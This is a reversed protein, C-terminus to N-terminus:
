APEPPTAAQANAEVIDQICNHFNQADCRRDYATPCYRQFWHEILGHHVVESIGDWFLVLQGDITAWTCLVNVPALGFTGVQVVRGDLDQQWDRPLAAAQVLGTARAERSHQRWLEQRAFGDAEVLFRTDGFRRDIDGFLGSVEVKRPPHGNAIAALADEPTKILPPTPDEPGTAEQAFIQARNRFKPGILRRRRDRAM